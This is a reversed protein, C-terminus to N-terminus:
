GGSRVIVDLLPRLTKRTEPAGEIVADLFLKKFDLLETKAEQPLYENRSMPFEESDFIYALAQTGGLREEPKLKAHHTHLHHVLKAVLAHDKILQMIREEGLADARKMVSNMYIPVLSEQTRDYSLIAADPNGANVLVQTCHEFLESLDTTQVAEVHELACRLLTGLSQEFTLLRTRLVDAGAIEGQLDRARAELWEPTTVPQTSSYQKWGAMLRLCLNLKGEELLFRITLQDGEWLTGEEAQPLRHEMAAINAVHALSDIMALWGGSM